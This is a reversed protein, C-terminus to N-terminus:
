SSPPRDIMWLLVQVIKAVVWLPFYFHLTCVRSVLFFILPAKMLFHFYFTIPPNKNTMQYQGNKILCLMKVDYKKVMFIAVLIRKIKLTSLTIIMEL